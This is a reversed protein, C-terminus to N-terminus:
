AVCRYAGVKFVLNPLCIVVLAPPTPVSLPLGAVMKKYLALGPSGLNPLQPLLYSLGM